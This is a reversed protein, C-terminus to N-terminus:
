LRRQATLSALPHHQGDSRWCAPIVARNVLYASRLNVAICRDFDEPSTECRGAPMVAANNM